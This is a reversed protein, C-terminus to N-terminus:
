TTSCLIYSIHSISVNKIILFGCLLKCIGRKKAYQTKQKELAWVFDLNSTKLRKFMCSFM